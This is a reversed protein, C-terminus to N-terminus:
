RSEIPVWNASCRRHTTGGYLIDRVQTEIFARKAEVVLITDLGEAFAHLGQPELPSIM